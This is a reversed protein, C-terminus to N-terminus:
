RLDRVKHESHQSEEYTVEGKPIEEKASKVYVVANILAELDSQRIMTRGGVHVFPVKGQGHMRYLHRVSVGGLLRAAEKLTVLPRLRDNM